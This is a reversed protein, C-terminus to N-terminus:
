KIEGMMERIAQAFDNADGGDGWMSECVRAAQELVDRLADATYLPESVEDPSGVKISYAHGFTESEQFAELDSPYIWAAPEPMKFTTM